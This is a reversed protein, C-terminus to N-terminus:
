IAFGNEWFKQASLVDYPSHETPHKLIAFTDWIVKKNQYIYKPIDLFEGLFQNQATFFTLQWEIKM